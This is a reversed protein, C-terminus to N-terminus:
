PLGPSRIVLSLIVGVVKKMNACASRCSGFSQSTVNPALVFKVDILIFLSETALKTGTSLFKLLSIAGLIAIEFLNISLRQIYPLTDLPKEGGETASTSGDVVTM